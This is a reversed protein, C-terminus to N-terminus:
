EEGVVYIGDQFIRCDRRGIKTATRLNAATQGVDEKSVGTITIEQGKTTIKAEGRIKVKRPSREGLFNKILIEKGKVELTMPFHAYVMKMKKTFGKMVGKTMNQVHGKVTNLMRKEKTSIKLKKGDLVLEVKSGFTRKTEGKSGKLTITSGEAKVEVEQPFELETNNTFM